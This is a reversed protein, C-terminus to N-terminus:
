NAPSCGTRTALVCVDDGAQSESGADHQQDDGRNKIARAAATPPSRQQDDHRCAGEVPGVAHRSRDLFFPGRSALPVKLGVPARSRRCLRFLLVGPCPLPARGVAFGADRWLRACLALRRVTGSSMSSAASSGAAIHRHIKVRSPAAGPSVGSSRNGARARHAPRSGPQRRVQPQQVPFSALDYCIHSADSSRVWRCPRESFDARTTTIEGRDPMCRRIEGHSYRCRGATALTRKAAPPKWNPM